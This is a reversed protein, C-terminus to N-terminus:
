HHLTTNIIGKGNINECPGKFFLKNTQIPKRAYLNKFLIFYSNAVRLRRRRRRLLLLYLLIEEDEASSSDYSEDVSAMKVRHFLHYFAHMRMPM